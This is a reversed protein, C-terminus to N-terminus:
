YPAKRTMIGDIHDYYSRYKDLGVMYASGSETVIITNFYGAGVDM